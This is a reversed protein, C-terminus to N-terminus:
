ANLEKWEQPSLGSKVAAPTRTDIVPTYGVPFTAEFMRRSEAATTLTVNEQDNRDRVIFVM